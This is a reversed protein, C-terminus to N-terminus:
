ARDFSLEVQIGDPDRVLIQVTGDRPVVAERFPVGADRLAARTAEVDLGQFAIHDINGAADHANESPGRQVLHILPEDGLYLWYGTSQFPPREGVILGILQEYFNRTREVDTCRINIHLFRSATM